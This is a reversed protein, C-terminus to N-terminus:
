CYLSQRSNIRCLHFSLPERDSSFESYVLCPLTFWEVSSIILYYYGHCTRGCVMYYDTFTVMVRSTMGKQFTYQIYYNSFKVRRMRILVQKTKIHNNHAKYIYLNHSTMTM